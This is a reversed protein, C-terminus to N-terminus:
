ATVRGYALGGLPRGVACRSLGGKRRWEANNETTM